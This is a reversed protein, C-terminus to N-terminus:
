RDRNYLYKSGTEKKEDNGRWNQKVSTNIRKLVSNQILGRKEFRSGREVRLNDFVHIAM